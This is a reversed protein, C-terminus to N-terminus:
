CAEVMMFDAMIQDSIFLGERSLSISETGQQIHGSTLYKKMIEQFHTFYKESFGTQIVKYSVGWITRLGTIIYDNYRDQETLIEAESNPEGNEIGELYKSISSVNWRRSKLDFSHASPGIGLYKEGKWYSSNHQSYFGFKCFNSIEYHEFGAQKLTEILIEFQQLSLEDPLEKLHGNKLQDYFVTGEHYTLHYASIHQVDLDVAMRVNREWEQLNQNPLGYILDISINKFGSNKVIEVAQVAQESDHRRNMLKLDSDSFSQIGISIRNYGIERLAKFKAENIDDPNAEITIEANANLTYNKRITNLLDHLEDVQLVSPTGGGLYVTHIEDATLEQSRNELETILGKVLRFKQGFDTTKYFDCYHCRKRCFPIHIYIGAM